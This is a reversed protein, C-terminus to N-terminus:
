WRAGFRELHIMSGDSSVVLRAPANVDSTAALLSPYSGAPVDLSSIGDLARRWPERGRARMRAGAPARLRAHGPRREPKPLQRKGAGLRQSAAALAAVIKFNPTDESFQTMGLRNFPDDNDSNIYQPPTSHGDDYHASYQEDGYFIIPIGRVTM